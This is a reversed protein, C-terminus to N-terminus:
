CQITTSAAGGAAALNAATCDFRQQTKDEQDTAGNTKCGACMVIVLLLAAIVRRVFDPYPVLTM